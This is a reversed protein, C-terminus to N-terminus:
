KGKVAPLGAHQSWEFWSGDYARVNAGVLRMAVYNVASEKGQNCYVTNMKNTMVGKYLRKLEDISKFSSYNKTLNKYWPINVASPIHGLVATQSQQGSYEQESRADILGENEDKIAAFVMLMTALKEEKLTPYVNTKVTAPVGKDTPYGRKKWESFSNNMIAVKEINFTEMVWFLRSIDMFNKDGYVVLQSEETVGAQNLLDRMEILSAVLDSRGNKTYTEDTPISVAGQIHGRKFNILPRSDVLIINQQGLREKVESMTLLIDNDSNAQSFGAFLAMILVIVGRLQVFQKAKVGM